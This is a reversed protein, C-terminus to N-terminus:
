KLIRIAPITGNLMVVINAEYKAPVPCIFILKYQEKIPKKIQKIKSRRKIGSNPIWPAAIAVTIAYKTLVAKIIITYILFVFLLILLRRIKFCSSIVVM